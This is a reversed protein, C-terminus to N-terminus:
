RATIAIHCAWEPHEAVKLWYDGPQLDMVKRWRIRRGMQKVEHERPGNVREVILTLDEDTGTRNDVALLFPGQQRTIEAPEFGTPRLTILEAQLRERGQQQDVRPLALDPTVLSTSQKNAAVSNNRSTSAVMSAGVIAMAVVSLAFYKLSLRGIQNLITRLPM